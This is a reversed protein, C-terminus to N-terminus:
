ECTTRTKHQNCFGNESQKKHPFPNFTYPTNEIAIARNITCIKFLTTAPGGGAWPVVGSNTACISIFPQFRTNRAVDSLPGFCYTFRM